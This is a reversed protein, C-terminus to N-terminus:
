NLLREVRDRDWRRGLPLVKSINGWLIFLPDMTSGTASFTSTIVLTDKLNGAVYAQSVCKQQPKNDEQIDTHHSWGVRSCHDAWEVAVATGVELKKDRKM